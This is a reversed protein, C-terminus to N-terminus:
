ALTCATLTSTKCLALGVEIELVTESGGASGSTVSFVFNPILGLIETHTGIVKELILQLM